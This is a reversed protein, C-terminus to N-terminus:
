WPLVEGVAEEMCCRFFDCSVSQLPFRRQVGVHIGKFSCKQWQFNISPEFSEIIREKPHGLLFGCSVRPKVKVAVSQGQYEGHYVQAVCGGGM